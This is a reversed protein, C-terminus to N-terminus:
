DSCLVGEHLIVGVLAGSSPLYWRSIALASKSDMDCLGVQFVIPAEGGLLFSRFESSKLYSTSQHKDSRQWAWHDKRIPIAKITESKGVNVCKQWKSRALIWSDNLTNMRCLTESTWTVEIDKCISDVTEGSIDNEQKTYEMCTFQLTNSDHDCEETGLLVRWECSGVCRVRSSKECKPLSLSFTSQLMKTMLNTCGSTYTGDNFYIFGDNARNHYEGIEKNFPVERIGQVAGGCSRMVQEVQQKERTQANYWTGVLAEEFEDFRPAVFPIVRENAEVCSAHLRSHQWSGLLNPQFALVIPPFIFCCVAKILYLM